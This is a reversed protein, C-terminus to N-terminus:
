RRACLTPDSFLCPKMPSGVRDSRFRFRAAPKAQGATAAQSRSSPIRKKLGKMREGGKPGPQLPNLSLGLVYGTLDARKESGEFRGLCNVMGKIQTPWSEGGYYAPSHTVKLKLTGKFWGRKWAATIQSWHGVPDTTVEANPLM